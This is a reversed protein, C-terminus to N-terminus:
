KLDNPKDIIKGLVSSNKIRMKEGPKKVLIYALQSSQDAAKREIEFGLLKIKDVLTDTDAASSYGNQYHDAGWFHDLPVYTFLYYGGQDLLPWVNAALETLTHINLYRTYHICYILGFSNQPLASLDFDKILYRMLRKNAYFDNFLCAANDLIHQDWDAIYLPEAALMHPLMQGTGPFIELTPFQWDNISELITKLIDLNELSYANDVFHKLRKGGTLTDIRIKVSESVPNLEEILVNIKKKLEQKYAVIPFSIADDKNQIEEIELLLNYIRTYDSLLMTNAGVLFIQLRTKYTPLM